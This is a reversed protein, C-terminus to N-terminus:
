QYKRWAISTDEPPPMETETPEPLRKAIWELQQYVDMRYLKQGVSEKVRARRRRWLAGDGRELWQIIYTGNAQKFLEPNHISKM